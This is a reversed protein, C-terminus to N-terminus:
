QGSLEELLTRELRERTTADTVNEKSVLYLYNLLQDIALQEGALLRQAFEEIKKRDKGKVNDIYGDVVSTLFGQQPTPMEFRVCRRLFPPPFTRAGNSTM